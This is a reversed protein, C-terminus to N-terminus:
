KNDDDSYYLIDDDHNEQVIIKKKKKKKFPYDINIKRWKIVFKNAKEIRKM